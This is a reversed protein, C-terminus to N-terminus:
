FRYSMTFQVVRRTAIGYEALRGFTTSTLNIDGNTGTQAMGFTPHNLINTSDMRFELIHKERIQTIKQASFDLGFNWPGSFYRRQLAGIEGAGPQYFAQGTFPAAGDAGVGRGDPGINSAAIIYPGSGSMRYGIVQDLESKSLLSTATNTVTSRASRNFTGRGSVISFPAGSQWTMMGGLNWGSVIRSIVPNGPNLLHGKGFPLEYVGNARIVHTLDFIARAREIAGNNIDLFPDFRSQTDGSTDSMVKGYTYNAQVQVGNRMKRRADFQLSNYSAHSYNDFLNMGLGYPNAYFNVNGNLKNVQYTNALEGAQQTQILGRITANTLLGGNPLADFFPVPKSGAVTANYAPDFGRGAAQALLGNNYANKFSDMYGPVNINVQNLDFARYQKVAHNGVYRIEVITEKINQQIGLSYQQVYPTRLNPNVVGQANQVDIAYNDSPTRPVKFSPTPVPTPNSLVSTLGSATATSSLGTNTIVSNRISAINEDNVFNISYGGRIVTKGGGRPDFAFGINPAFNNKDANYWPRGVAGGAFDYLPNGLLLQRANSSNLGQPLLFLADKEDVRSYYDYRLGLVLSLRNNVKWTDQGYFGWNSQVFRRLNTAGNVFGSDRSTVNFTQTYSTILGGLNALLKNANQLDTASIGPLDNSNLGLTSNVSIGLQYTPTIGNDNYPATMLHQYQFGYQLTHRGKVTTANDQLNYTNTERGQARFLNVPNSYLLDTQNVLFKPFNETTLFPATTLNFGGRLENTTHATPTWRWTLSLLRPASDNTVKPIASYDTAITSDNRDTVDRNWIYSGSFNNKTNLYFDIKGTVNDRVRNSRSNFSYGATNRLIADSSDGLRFNNINSASPVQDLLAKAASDIPVGKLQLVNVKRPQGGVLYTFVGNRADDTLITTNRLTQQALRFGEYNGYFFLKDKIIAGGLGGGFQNQNLFPKAVNDRNNLWASAAVANNRNSWFLAGHYNNTGSPTVLNIQGAGGGLAVNNNSTGINMEAIQDLLLMNPQFELGNARIFNDQINIGDLTVNIFSPRMGNITFTGRPNKTIGTQTLLLAMPNRDVTPLGRLQERTITSSIEANNTQVVQTAASVEVVETVTGIELKIAGVPMEQSATIKVARLSNKRFGSAEVIVDYSEPRVAPFLFFGEGNTTSAAVPTSGGPLILQVSANPIPAGAPDVVSGSLRGSVQAFASAAGVLAFLVLATRQIM